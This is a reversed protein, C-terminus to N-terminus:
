EPTPVTTAGSDPGSNTRRRALNVIVSGSGM